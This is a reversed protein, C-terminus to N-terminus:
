SKSSNSDSDLKFPLKVPRNNNLNNNAENAEEKDKGVELPKLNSQAKKMNSEQVIRKRIIPKGLIPKTKADKSPEKAPDQKQFKDSNKDDWSSNLDKLKWGMKPGDNPIAQLQFPSPSPSKVEPSPTESVKQLKLNLQKKSKTKKDDKSKPISHQKETSMVELNKGAEAPNDSPKIIVIQPSIKRIKELSNSTRSDALAAATSFKLSEDRRLPLDSGGSQFPVTPVEGTNMKPIPISEVKSLKLSNFLEGTSVLMSNNINSRKFYLVAEDFNFNASTLATECAADAMKPKAVCVSPVVDDISKDNNGAANADDATPFRVPAAKPNFGFQKESSIKGMSVVGAPKACDKFNVGFVHDLLM